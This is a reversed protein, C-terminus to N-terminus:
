SYTFTIKTGLYTINTKLRLDFSNYFVLKIVNNKRALDGVKTDFNKIIADTGRNLFISEGERVRGIDRLYNKINALTNAPNSDMVFKNKENAICIEV